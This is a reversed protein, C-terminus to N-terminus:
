PVVLALHGQETMVIKVVPKKWSDGDKLVGITEEVHRRPHFWWHGIKYKAAAISKLYEMENNQRSLMDLLYREVKDM